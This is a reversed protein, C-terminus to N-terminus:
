KRRWRTLLARETTALNLEAAGRLLRVVSTASAVDSADIRVQKRGPLLATLWRPRRRHWAGPGVLVAALEWMGPGIQRVEIDDVIGCSHDHRDVLPLDRFATELERPSSAKM